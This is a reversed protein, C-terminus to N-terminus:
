QEKRPQTGGVEAVKDVDTSIVGEGACSRKVASENDEMEVDMDWTTRKNIQGSSRYVDGNNNSIM